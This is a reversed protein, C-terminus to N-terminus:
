CIESCLRGDTVIFHFLLCVLLMSHTRDHKSLESIKLTKLAEAYCKTYWETKLKAERQSTITLAAYLANIAGTRIQPQILFALACAALEMGAEDMNRMTLVKLLFNAFRVVRNSEGDVSTECSMPFRNCSFRISIRYSMKRISYLLLIKLDDEQEKMVMLNAITIAPYFEDLTCKEYNYWQIIDDVFEKNDERTMLLVMFNRRKRTSRMGYNYNTVCDFCCFFSCGHPRSRVSGDVKDDSGREWIPLQSSCLASFMMLYCILLIVHIHKEEEDDIDYTKKMSTEVAPLNRM